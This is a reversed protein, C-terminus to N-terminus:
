FLSLIHGKTIVVFGVENCWNIDIGRDILTQVQSAQGKGAAALFAM